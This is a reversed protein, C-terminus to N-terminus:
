WPEAASVALAVPPPRFVAGLQSASRLVLGDLLVTGGRLPRLRVQVAAACGAAV